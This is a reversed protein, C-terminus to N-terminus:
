DQTDATKPPPASRVGDVEKGCDVDDDDSATAPKSMGRYM